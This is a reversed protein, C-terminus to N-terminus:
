RWHFAPFTQPQEPAVERVYVSAYQTVGTGGIIVLTLRPERRRMANGRRWRHDQLGDFRPAM